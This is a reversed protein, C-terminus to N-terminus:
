RFAAVQAQYVTVPVYRVAFEVTCRACAVFFPKGNKGKELALEHKHNCYPCNAVVISQPLLRPEAKKAPKAAPKAETAAEVRLPQRVEPVTESTETETPINKKM